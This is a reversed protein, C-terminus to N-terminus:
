TTALKDDTHASVPESLESLERAAEEDHSHAMSRILVVVLVGVSMWFAIVALVWIVDGMITAMRETVRVGL